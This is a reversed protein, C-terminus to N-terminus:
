FIELSWIWIFLLYFAGLFFSMTLFWPLSYDEGSNTLKSCFYGAAIYGLLLFGWYNFSWPYPFYVNHIFGPFGVIFVMSLISIAATFNNM